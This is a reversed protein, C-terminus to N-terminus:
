NPSRSSPRTKSRWRPHDEQHDPLHHDDAGPGFLFRSALFRPALISANWYPRAALRQLPLRDRHPHEGGVPHLAAVLPSSPGSTNPEGGSYRQLLIYVPSPRHEPAPLREPRDVDWALLSDPFNLSGIFPMIHWFRDPQGMDVTVFLLCM